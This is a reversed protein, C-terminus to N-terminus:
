DLSSVRPRRRRLVSATSTWPQEEDGFLGTTTVFGPEVEAHGSRRIHLIEVGAARLVRAVLLRRHCHEPNEESCMVAVRLSEIGECLRRLGDNFQETAAVLDYRVRGDSTYLSPDAPRGGLEAGLWVYQVGAAKLADRIADQDFWPAHRSRPWSRVDAVADIHHERLNSVFEDVETNSHGITWIALGDSPM